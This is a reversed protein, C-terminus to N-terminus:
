QGRRSGLWEALARYKEDADDTAELIAPRALSEVFSGAGELARKGGTALMKRMEPSRLDNILRTGRGGTILAGLTGAGVGLMANTARDDDDGVSAGALGMAAPLGKRIAESGYWKKGSDNLFVDKVGRQAAEVVPDRAQAAALEAEKTAFAEVGEKLRGGYKEAASRYREMAEPSSAAEKLKAALAPDVQALKEAAEEAVKQSRIVDASHGGMAGRASEVAKDKSKTAAAIMDDSADTAKGEFWNALKGGKIRKGIAGLGKDLVKGAVAGGATQVLQEGASGEAHGFANLAGLGAPSAIARAGKALTGVGKAAAGGPIFSTAIGGALESAGFTKPHAKELAAAESRMSDRLLEYDSPQAAQMALAQQKIGRLEPTDDAAPQMGKGFKVGPSGLFFQGIGAGLEDGFGFTLGQTAGVAAARAQSPAPANKAELEELELLELEEAETM